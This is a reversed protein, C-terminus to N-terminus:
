RSSRANQEISRVIYPEVGGLTPAVLAANRGEVVPAAEFSQSRVTAMWAEREARDFDAAYASGTLAALAALTYVIKNM